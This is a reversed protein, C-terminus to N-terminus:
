VRRRQRAAGFSGALALDWQARASLQDLAAFTSGMGSLGASFPELALLPADDDQCDRGGHAQKPPCHLHLTVTGLLQGDELAGLFVRGGADAAGLSKSWFSSAGAVSLPHM